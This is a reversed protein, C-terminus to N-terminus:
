VPVFVGVPTVVTEVVFERVAVVLWVTVGVIVAVLVPV